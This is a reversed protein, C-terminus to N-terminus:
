RKRDTQFDGDVSTNPAEAREGSQTGGYQGPVRSRSTGRFVSKKSRPQCTPYRSHKRQKLSTKEPVAGELGTRSHDVYGKFEIVSRRIALLTPRSIQRRTAGDDFCHVDRGGDRTDLAGRLGWISSVGRDFASRTPDISRQAWYELSEEGAQTSQDWAKGVFSKTSDNDIAPTNAATGSDQDSAAEIRGEVVDDGFTIAQCKGVYGACGGDEAEEGTPDVVNLPNLYAYGFVNFNKSEQSRSSRGEVYRSLAPDTSQWVSTQPDYYRAGFYYLETEEDMGQRHLPVAHEPPQKRERGGLNGPPSTSSTSTM